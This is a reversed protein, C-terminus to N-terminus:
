CVFWSGVYTAKRARGGAWNLVSEGWVQAVCKGQPKNYVNSPCSPFVGWFCWVLIQTGLGPGPVAALRGWFSGWVAGFRGWVRGWGVSPFRFKAGVAGVAWIRRARKAFTKARGRARGLGPGPWAPPGWRIESCAGSCGPPSWFVRNNQLGPPTGFVQYFVPTRSCRELVLPQEPAGPPNTRSSPPTNQRQGLAQGFAQVTAGTPPKEPNGGQRGKWRARGRWREGQRRGRGGVM